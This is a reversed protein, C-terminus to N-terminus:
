PIMGANIRHRQLRSRRPGGGPAPLGQAGRVSAIHAVEAADIARAYIRIEDMLGRFQNGDDSTPTRIYDGLRATQGTLSRGATLTSGAQAGSVYGRLQSGNYTAAVHLWTDVPLESGFTRWTSGDYVALLKTASPTLGFEIRFGTTGLIRRYGTAHFSAIKIWAAITWEAATLTGIAIHHSGGSFEIARNGGDTVWATEPSMGILTGDVNATLDSLTDTGDGVADLSPCWWRMEDGLGVITAPIAPLVNVDGSHEESGATATVTVDGAALGEIAFEEESEDAAITATGPLILRGSPSQSLSVALPSSDAPLRFVSAPLSVGVRISEPLAIRLPLLTYDIAIEFDTFEAWALEFSDHELVFLQFLLQLNAVLRGSAAAQAVMDTISIEYPASAPYLTEDYPEGVGPTDFHNSHWRREIGLPATALTQSGFAVSNAPIGCRLIYSSNNTNYERASLDITASNIVAGTLDVPLAFRVGGARDVVGYPDWGALISGSPPASGMTDSRLEAPTLDIVPM